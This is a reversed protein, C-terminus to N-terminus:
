ELPILIWQVICKEVHEQTKGFGEYKEEYKHEKEIGFRICLLRKCYFWNNIKAKHTGWWRIPTAKSSIYLALLIQNEMFQVEYKMFFDKLDNLGYFTPPERVKTGVWRMMCTM